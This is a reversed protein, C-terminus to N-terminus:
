FGSYVPGDRPRPILRGIETQRYERRLREQKVVRWRWVVVSFILAIGAAGCIVIYFGAAPKCTEVGPDSEYLLSCSRPQTAGRSCFSNRPCKVPLETAPDPCYSGAPCATCQDKSTLGTLSGYYGAGCGHCGSFPQGKRDNYTGKPCKLCSDTKGPSYLGFDCPDCFPSGYNASFYGASCGVCTATGEGETTFGPPCATCNTSGQERAVYGGPCLVCHTSGTTNSFQGTPCLDCSYPELCSGM